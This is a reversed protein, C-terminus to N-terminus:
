RFASATASPMQSLTSARGLLREYFGGFTGDPSVLHIELIWHRTQGNADRDRMRTPNSPRIHHHQKAGPIRAHPFEAVIHGAIQGGFRWGAKEASQCAFAYLEAGTIDDHADFHAKVLDFQEPLARVLAHKIPDDGVAYSRGVDAEWDAFVPGVDLFVMDDAEITRIPPNDSFDSLTNIGARVIRKHWHKEVGFDRAALALIDKDIERETRGPQILGAAEIADLLALAKDEAAILASLRESENRTM